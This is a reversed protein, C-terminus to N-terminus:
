FQIGIGITYFIKKEALFDNGLSLDICFLNYFDKLNPKISVGAGWTTFPLLKFKGEDNGALTIGGRFALLEFPAFECALIFNPYKEYQIYNSEISFLLYKPPPQIITDEMGLENRFTIIKEASLPFEMAIGSRITFPINSKESRTNYKIIGGINQVVIGFTFLDMVNFKSGFDFAVGSGSVDSGQLTNNLYKVVLGFSAFNTAFSGGLALNFFYDSLKGIENGTRNRAIISGAYHSSISAGIGFDGISQAYTLNAYNRSFEMLSLSSYVMPVPACSSLGAPNYFITYPDNSIATYAGALSIPRTGNERFLYAGSFGGGQRQAILPLSIQNLFIFLLLLVLFKFNTKIM